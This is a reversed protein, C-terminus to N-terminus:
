ALKGLTQVAHSTCLPSGHESIYAVTDEPPCSVGFEGLIRMAMRRFDTAANEKAASKTLLLYFGGSLDTHAASSFRLMGAREAARLLSNCAHLLLPLCDFRYILAQEAPIAIKKSEAAQSSPASLQTHQQGLRTVFMECGGERSPYYQVFLKEQGEEFNGEVGADHLISRFARRTQETECSISQADLAYNKMDSSTLMIKLKNNNIRIWEM